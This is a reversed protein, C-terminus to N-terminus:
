IKRYAFKSKQVKFFVPCWFYTKCHQSSFDIQCGGTLGARGFLGKSDRLNPCRFYCLVCKLGFFFFFFFVSINTKITEFM